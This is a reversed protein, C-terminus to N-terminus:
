YWARGIVRTLSSTSSPLELRTWARSLRNLPHPDIRHPELFTLPLILLLLLCRLLLELPPGTVPKLPLISTTAPYKRHYTRFLMSAVPGTQPQQPPLARARWVVISRDRGTPTSAPSAVQRRGARRDRRRTTMMRGPPSRPPVSLLPLELPVPLLVPRPAPMWAEEEEAAPPLLLPPPLPALEPRTSALITSDVAGLLQLLPLRPSRGVAATDPSTPVWSALPPLVPPTRTGIRPRRRRNTRTCTMGSSM